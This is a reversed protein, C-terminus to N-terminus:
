RGDDDPRQQATAEAFVGLASQVVNGVGANFDLFRDAFRLLFQRTGDLRGRGSGHPPLRKRPRGREQRRHYGNRGDVGGHIPRCILGDPAEM